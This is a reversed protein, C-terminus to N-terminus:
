TSIDTDAWSVDPSLAWTLAHRREHVAGGDLIPHFNEPVSTKSGTQASRVANHACYFKDEMQVIEALERVNAASLFDDVSMDLKPLFEFFLEDAVERTLQGGTAVPEIEFGMVWALAWINEQYWGITAGFREQALSRRLELIAREDATLHELLDSREIFDDIEKSPVKSEPATVWIFLAQIAMLRSAIEKQPRLKGAVFARHGSTPLGESFVFGAKNLQERNIERIRKGQPDPRDTNKATPDDAPSNITFERIPQMPVFEGRDSEAAAASNSDQDDDQPSSDNSNCGLVCQGVVFLFCCFMIQSRLGSTNM